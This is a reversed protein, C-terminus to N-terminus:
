ILGTALLLGSLLVLLVLGTLVLAQRARGADPRPDTRPRDGIVPIPNTDPEVIPIPSTVPEAEAWRAPWAVPILEATRPYSPSM